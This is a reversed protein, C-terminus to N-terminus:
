FNWQNLWKQSVLTHIVPWLNNVQGHRSRMIMEQVWKKNILGCKVLEGQLIMDEIEDAHRKWAIVMSGSTEGKIARWGAKIKIIRSIAKRFFIRDYGKEFSQYTPIRLALEVLPLSLFPHSIVNFSSRQNRGAYAVAHFLDKVQEAKAPCFHSIASKLYFESPKFVYDPNLFPYPESKKWFNKFYYNGVDQLTTKLLGGIPMRYISSLEIMTPYFGKFGRQLWLDALAKQPAPAMFVHDGGQGSMVRSCGRELALQYLQKIVNYFILFSTPKNPRWGHPLPDLLSCNQWDIFYLSVNCANAAEQAYGVENSSLAKSDIYNVAILKKTNPLVSRALILLSSSDLGGSLEVCIGKDDDPEIWAKTCAKLLSLLEEEFANKDAIYSSQISNIDWLHNQVVSGDHNIGLTTGPLLEKIDSFPTILSAHNQNIIYEAFYDINISPKEPLVDYLLSLETSFIIGDPKIIYFLTSLGLPDRILTIKHTLADYLVGAYRGWFNNHLQEPNLNSKEDFGPSTKISKYSVRDFLKGIIIGRNGFGIVDDSEVENNKYGAHVILNDQVLSTVRKHNQNLASLLYESTLHKCIHGYAGIVASM